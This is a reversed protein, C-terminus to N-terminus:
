GNWEKEGHMMRLQVFGALAVINAIHAMTCFQCIKGMEVEYSVLLGIVGLGIFTMFTGLDIFNKVWSATPEKSSAYSFFLLLSFTCLGVMGWPVDLFPMTNYNANGIVDDCSFITNSACFNAGESVKAHIWQTQVSVALGGLLTLNLGSLIRGRRSKLSPFRDSLGLFISESGPLILLLGILVPLGYGALLLTTTEVELVM